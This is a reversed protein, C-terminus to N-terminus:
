SARTKRHKEPRLEEAADDYDASCRGWGIGPERSTTNQLAENCSWWLDDAKAHDMVHKEKVFTSTLNIEPDKAEQDAGKEAWENRTEQDLCYGPTM